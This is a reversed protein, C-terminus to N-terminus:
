RAPKQIPLNEHVSRTLIISDFCDGSNQRNQGWRASMLKVNTERCGTPQIAVHTGTVINKGRWGFDVPNLGAARARRATQWQRLLQEPIAGAAIKEPHRLIDAHAPIGGLDSSFLKQNEARLASQALRIAFRNREAIVGTM